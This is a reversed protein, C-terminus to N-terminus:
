SKAFLRLNKINELIVLSASLNISTMMAVAYNIQKAIFFYVCLVLICLLVIRKIRTYFIVESYDLTHIKNGTTKNIFLYITSLITIVIFSYINECFLNQSLLLIAIIINSYIYCILRSKCHLGGCYSRLPMFPILLFLLVDVKQVIYSIIVATLINILITFGNNLGYIYIDTNEDIINHKQMKKILYDTILM